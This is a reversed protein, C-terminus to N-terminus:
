VHSSDRKKRRLAIVGAALICYYAIIFPWPILSVEILGGFKSFLEVIGVLYWLFPVAFYIVVTGLQQSLLGVVAGIGGFLMIYPITWLVLANVIISWLSYTGFHFLLIPVTALQAAITTVLEEGVLSRELAFSMKKYAHILPPLYLLGATAVFSLQFGVDLLLRPNVMLMVWGTVFLAYVAFRQRGIIQASFAIGGMIAARVISPEFSALAAYLVIALISICLALQRKVLLASIAAISGGVLTINMGSAAVIHLLGTIQLEQLLADPLGKKIGFVIGLLLSSYVPPLSSEFFSILRGRIGGLFSLPNFLGEEVVITPYKMSYIPPKLFSSNATEQPIQYLTGVIRLVDGYRYEPFRATTIFVQEGSDLSVRFRQSGGKIAPDEVLLKTFSQQTAPLVTQSQFVFLIRIVLFGVALLFLPLLRTHLM